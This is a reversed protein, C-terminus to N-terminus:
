SSLPPPTANASPPVACPTCPGARGCPPRKWPGTRGNATKPWSWMPHLTWVPSPPSGASGSNWPRPGGNRANSCPAWALLSMRWGPWIGPLPWTPAPTASPPRRSRGAEERIRLHSRALAHGARPDRSPPRPRLSRRLVALREALPVMSVIDERNHYFIRSMETADGSRPIPTSNRSSIGPVDDESRRLGLIQEELNILRVSQLRRRWLRRAPHLLDLHAAGGRLLSIARMSSRCRALASEPSADGCCPCM